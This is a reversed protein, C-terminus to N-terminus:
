RGSIRRDKYLAHAAVGYEAIAHMERTRIQLEVRQHRPGVVTTHISQYNNQKPTSIYDKFRGPVTRWTTHAVGLVRYCDDITPVIVRFAYIDSLQELSIQKNEMKRWIAYPKKERGTVEAKIGVEALKHEM